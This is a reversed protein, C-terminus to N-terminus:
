RPPVVLTQITMLYTNHKVSLVQEKHSAQENTIKAWKLILWVQLNIVSVTFVVEVKQFSPVQLLKYITYDKPM